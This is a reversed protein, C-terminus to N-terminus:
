VEEEGAPSVAEGATFNRLIQLGVQQSKEPHFQVGYLSGRGVVSAFPDGYDTMALRDEPRAHCYYGHNFYAWAGEELGVLLPTSRVPEVQNWGTHPVKLPPGVDFHVVRGPLLGLGEHGGLEEGYEFLVQMGVCIGLFPVGARVVERIPRILGLRHLSDMCDAFAGVGPLVVKEAQLVVGPKQTLVVEAGVALLAKQVSRVNGAGYDILAIM